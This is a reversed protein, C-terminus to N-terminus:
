AGSKTNNSAIAQVVNNIDARVAAGTGNDIVFDPEAM